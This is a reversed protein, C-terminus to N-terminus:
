EDQNCASPSLHVFKGHHTNLACMLAADAAIAADVGLNAIALIFPFAANVLAYTATRAVVGPMNPVCYHIIGEAEFTPLEHTTPRSTEISGGEDIAADMILSRPKMTRLMERSIIIPAREGPHMIASVIVDAYTCARALTYSNSVATAVGPYRNAITELAELNTDLVTVHAGLGLFSQTAYSGFSGAGIIVVEAPPIGALGGLLIGKGGGNNQLLRAAIQASMRGGIQSMAKLVPRSGDALRIQEYAISTIQRDLLTQIKEQRASTLHLLGALTIGPRLWDLEDQLPRAVKLVLDARGFVEHPTYVIRAGSQEFDQDSFGAGLGANHEVHCTHGHDCLMKVGGPTLGIRFEFPRREKPIGIIMKKVEFIVTKLGV